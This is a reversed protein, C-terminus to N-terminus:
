GVELCFGGPEFVSCCFVRSRSRGNGDIEYETASRVERGEIGGGGFGIEVRRWGGVWRNVILIGDLWFVGSTRRSPPRPVVREVGGYERVNSTELGRQDDWRRSEGDEREM